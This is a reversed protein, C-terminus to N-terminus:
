RGKAIVGHKDLVAYLDAFLRDPVLGKLEIDLYDLYVQGNLEAGM